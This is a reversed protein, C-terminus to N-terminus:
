SILVTGFYFMEILSRQMLRMSIMFDDYIVSISIIGRYFATLLGLILIFIWMGDEDKEEATGLLFAVILPLGLLNMMKPVSAFYSQPSTFIQAINIVAPILTFVFAIAANDQLSDDTFALYYTIIM